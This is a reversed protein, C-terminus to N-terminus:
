KFKQGTKTDKLIIRNEVKLDFTEALNKMLSIVQHVEENRTKVHKTASKIAEYATNDTYGSGNKRLNNNNM